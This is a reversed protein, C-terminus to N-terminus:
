QQARFLKELRLRTIKSQEGASIRLEEDPHNRLRERLLLLMEDASKGTACVIFIYGFKREYKVNEVALARLAAESAIGTGAQEDEAWTRVALFKRRLLDMGGIKPHHAFAEKWDTEELNNWISEARLFLDDPSHFPRSVTMTHIWKQSGCCREFTSSAEEPPLANIESLTM